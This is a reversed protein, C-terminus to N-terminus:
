VRERCSARGIKVGVQATETAVAEAALEALEPRWTAAWAIPTPFAIHFAYIADIAFLLPIKLRSTAIVDRFDQVHTANVVNLMGGMRGQRVAELQPERPFAYSPFNLQGIKEELTMRGMLATIKAEIARDAASASSPTSFAPAPQSALAALITLLLIGPKM